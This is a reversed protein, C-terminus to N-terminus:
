KFVGGLEAIGAGPANGAVSGAFRFSADRLGAPTPRNKLSDWKGQEASINQQEALLKLLWDKASGAKSAVDEYAEPEGQPPAIQLPARVPDRSTPSTSNLVGRIIDDYNGPM